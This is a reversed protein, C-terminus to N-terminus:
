IKWDGGKLGGNPKTKDETLICYWIIAAFPAFLGFLLYFGEM